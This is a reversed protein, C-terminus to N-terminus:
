WASELIGLIQPTSEVRRPNGTIATDNLTREALMPFDGRQVGIDRLRSPFGLREILSRTAAIAANPDKDVGIAASMEILSECAAEKNFEMAHPLMVCSAIGHPIDYYGCLQHDIAHGVGVNVNKTCFQAMWSAFLLNGRVDIDAPDGFGRGLNDFLMTISRLALADSFPHHNRSYLREVNHDLCKVGSSLWLDAPTDGTAYPDLFIVKPLVQRCYYQDKKGTEADTLGAQYTFEAGSLTTPIAFIPPVKTATQKDGFGIELTGKHSNVYTHGRFRNLDGFASVMAIGKAVDVASGGGLSVISDAENSELMNAGQFVCQLPGHQRAGSFVAVLRDALIDRIKEYISSRSVSSTTVILVRHADFRELEELIRESCSPGFVVKWNRENEFQGVPSKVM